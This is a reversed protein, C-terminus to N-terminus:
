GQESSVKLVQGPANEAHLLCSEGTESAPQLPVITKVMRLITQSKEEELQTGSLGLADAKLPILLYSERKAKGTSSTISMPCLYERNDLLETAVADHERALTMVMTFLIDHQAIINAHAALLDPQLPFARRLLKYLGKSSCYLYGNPTSVVDWWGDTVRNVNEKIVAILKEANFWGSIDVLLPKSNGHMKFYSCNPDRQASEKTEPLACKTLCAEQEAIQKSAVVIQMQRGLEMMRVEQDSEKLKAALTYKKVPFHHSSVADILEVSNKVLNFESIGRLFHTSVIPHDGTSYGGTSFEPIKGVDHALAIILYPGVFVEYEVSELMKEAVALSHKWLPIHALLDIGDPELDCDYGSGGADPACVVSPCGGSKDLLELIRCIVVWEPQKISYNNCVYKAYFDEIDPYCFIPPSRWEAVVPKPKPPPSNYPMYGDPCVYRTRTSSLVEKKVEKQDTSIDSEKLWYIFVYISIAVGMFAIVVLLGSM